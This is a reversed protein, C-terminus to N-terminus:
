LVCTSCYAPGANIIAYGSHTGICITGLLLFYVFVGMFLFYCPTHMCAHMCLDHLVDICLHACHYNPIIVIFQLKNCNYLTAIACTYSSCHWQIHIHMSLIICRVSQFLMICTLAYLYIIM